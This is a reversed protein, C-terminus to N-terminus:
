FEFHFVRIKESFQALIEKTRDTSGDNIVIYEISVSTKANLVSEITEAIYEAGNFVPTIVSIKPRSIM